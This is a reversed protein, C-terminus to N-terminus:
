PLRYFNYHLTRIREYTFDSGKNAEDKLDQYANFFDAILEFSDKQNLSRVLDKRFYDDILRIAEGVSYRPTTVSENARCNYQNIADELKQIHASFNRGEYIRGFEARLIEKAEGSLLSSSTLSIIRDLAGMIQDYPFPPAPIATEEDGSCEMIKGIIQIFERVNKPKPISRDAIFFHIEVYNLGAEELAHLTSENEKRVRSVLHAKYLDSLVSLFEDSFIPKDM